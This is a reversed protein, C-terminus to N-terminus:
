LAEKLSHDKSFSVMKVVSNYLSQNDKRWTISYTFLLLKIAESTNGVNPSKYVLAKSMLDKIIIIIVILILVIIIIILQKRSIIQQCFNKLGEKCVSDNGSTRKIFFYRYKIQMLSCFIFVEHWRPIHEKSNCM